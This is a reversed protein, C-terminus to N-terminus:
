RTQVSVNLLLGLSLMSVVLSSGGYSIFPLPLGKTPVLGLCVAMNILGQLVLLCTLGLALWFGFADPARHAVRMGRWFLIVFAALVVLCGILGFDEGIVSYIFDTHPAPLYLARQQGLGLGAGGIGGSGFAILSQCLQYGKGLPDSWPDLFTTVRALRYPQALVAAGFAVVGAVGAGLITSWRLGAVFLMAGAVVVPVVASGLDPELNVLFAMSGVVALVPVPVALPENVRDGDRTLKWAVYLVVALKALESPQLNIPGMSIWRRAEAQAPRTLVFLLAAWSVVNASYVVARRALLRYDYSAAAALALCGVLVHLLHRWGYASAGRGGEVAIYSSATEVMFWGACVLLTGIAALWPDFIV